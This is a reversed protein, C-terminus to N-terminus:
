LKDLTKQSYYLNQYIWYGAINKNVFDLQFNYKSRWSLISSIYSKADLKSRYNGRILDRIDGSEVMLCLQTGSAKAREFERKFRDRNKVTRRNCFNNSLEELDAKREIMLSNNMVGKYELAYDGYSLKRFDYLIKNKKFFNTIHAIKKEQTDIIIIFDSM